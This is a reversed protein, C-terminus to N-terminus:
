ILSLRKRDPFVGLDEMLFTNFLKAGNIATGLQERSSSGPDNGSSIAVRFDYPYFEEFLGVSRRGAEDDDIFLIIDKFALLQVKQHEKLQIGFTCTVNITIWQWIKHVDMLGEVVVLTKDTDLGASNFIYNVSTNVPYLVKKQQGRTYDRGEASRMVRDSDYLPIVLRNVWPIGNVRGNELVRIGFVDIFDESIERWDCYRKALPVDEVRALSTDFKVFKEIKSDVPKREAKVREAIVDVNRFMTLSLNLKGDWETGTLDKYLRYFPKETLCTFCKFYGNDKYVLASPTRDDHYPCRIQFYRFGNKYRIGATRLLARIEEAEPNRFM